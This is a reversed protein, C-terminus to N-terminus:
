GSSGDRRAARLGRAYAVLEGISRGLHLNPEVPLAQPDLGRGGIVVSVSLPALARAFSGIAEGFPEARRPASVSLFVLAPAMERAARELSSFPLDPGLNVADFGEAALAVAASLSAVLYPDDEPGGGIALPGTPEPFLERLRVLAEVAIGTARHELWIGDPDDVWLEGIRHMAEAVVGDVIAAASAGSLYLSQVLGRAQAARGDRLLSFLADADAVAQARRLPAVEGLGLRDPRLVPFHSDRIFRVAEPVAIRRHGGATRCARIAGEDAWRKISSESVGIAEALDRPTLTRSEPMSQGTQVPGFSPDGSGGM